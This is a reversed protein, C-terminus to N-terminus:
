PRAEPKIERRAIQTEVWELATEYHERAITEVDMEGALRANLAEKIALLRNQTLNVSRKSYIPTDSM